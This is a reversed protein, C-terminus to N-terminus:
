LEDVVNDRLTTVPAGRELAVGSAERLFEGRDHTTKAPATAAWPMDEDLQHSVSFL